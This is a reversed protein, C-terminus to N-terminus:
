VAKVRCDQFFNNPIGDIKKQWLIQGLSDSKILIMKYNATGGYMLYGGPMTFLFQPQSSGDFGSNHSYQINNCVQGKSFSFVMSNILLLIILRTMHRTARLNLPM